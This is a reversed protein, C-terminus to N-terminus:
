MLNQSIILLYIDVYGAPISWSIGWGPRTESTERRRWKRVCSLWRPFHSRSQGDPGRVGMSLLESHLVHRPVPALACCWLYLKWKEFDSWWWQTWVSLFPPDYGLKRNYIKRSRSWSKKTFTAPNLQINSFKKFIWWFIWGSQSINSWSLFRRKWKNLNLYKM